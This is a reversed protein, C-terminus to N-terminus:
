FEERGLWHRRGHPNGTPRACTLRHPCVLCLQCPADLLGAGRGGQESHRCATVAAELMVRMRGHQDHAIGDRHLDDIAREADMWGQQGTALQRDCESRSYAGDM